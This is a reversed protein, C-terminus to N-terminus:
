AGCGEENHWLRIPFQAAIVADAVPPSEAHHRPGRMSLCLCRVVPSILRELIGVDQQTAVLRWRPSRRRIHDLM